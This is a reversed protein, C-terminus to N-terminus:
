VCIFYSCVCNWQAWNKKYRREWWQVFILIFFTLFFIASSYNWKNPAQLLSQFGKSAGLLHQNFINREVFEANGNNNRSKSNGNLSSGCFEFSRLLITWRSDVRRSCFELFVISTVNESLFSKNNRCALLWLSLPLSLRAFVYVCLECTIEIIQLIFEIIISANNDISGFLFTTFFVLLFFLNTNYMHKYLLYMRFCISDSNSHMSNNNHGRILDCKSHEKKPLSLRVFQYQSTEVDMTRM